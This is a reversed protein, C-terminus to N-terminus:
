ALRLEHLPKQEACAALKLFDWLLEKLNFRRNFRFQFLGFYRHLYYGHARHHVGALSTKLNSLVTSNWKFISDQVAKRGKCAIAAYRACFNPWTKPCYSLTDGIGDVHPSSGHLFSTGERGFEFACESERCVVRSENTSEQEPSCGRATLPCRIGKRRRGM